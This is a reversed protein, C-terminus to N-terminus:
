GGCRNPTLELDHIVTRFPQGAYIAERLQQRLDVPLRKRARAQRWARTTDSHARRCQTCHCGAHWRVSTGHVAESV